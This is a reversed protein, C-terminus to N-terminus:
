SIWKELLSLPLASVEQIQQSDTVDIQAALAEVGALRIEGATSEADELNVDFIAVAAGAGALAIAMAKGLGRGAGTVIARKGALSFINFLDPAPVTPSPHTANPTM